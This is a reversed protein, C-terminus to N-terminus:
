AAKQAPQREYEFVGYVKGTERSNFYSTLVRHAALEPFQDDSEIERIIIDGSKYSGSEAHEVIKEQTMTPGVADAFQQKDYVIHFSPKVGEAVYYETAVFDRLYFKSIDSQPDCDAEIRDYKQISQKILERYIFEGIKAGGYSEDVNFSGFYIHPEPAEANDDVRAYGVIEDEHRLTYFGTEPKSFSTELGARVKSSFEVPENQWFADFIELMRARDSPSLTSAPVSEFSASEMISIDEAEAIVGESRLTRFATTFIVNEVRVQELAELTEEDSIDSALIDKARRMLNADLKKNVEPSVNDGFERVTNRTGIVLHNYLGLIDAGKPSAAIKEMVHHGMNRDFEMSLFARIGDEGFQDVFDYVREQLNPGAESVFSLFWGQEEFTLNNFRTGTKEFFRENYVEFYKETFEKIFAERRAREEESVEGRDKFLTDYTIALVDVDIQETDDSLDGLEFYGVMKEEDDFVGVEGNSTLRNVFFDPNNLEGLNYLRGMYRVGEESMGIKGLELRYLISALANKDRVDARILELLKQSAQEPGQVSLAEAIANGFIPNRNKNWFDVLLKVNEPDPERKSFAEVTALTLKHEAYEEVFGGTEATSNMEREFRSQPMEYVSNAQVTGFIMSHAPDHIPAGTSEWIEQNLRKNREISKKTFHSNLAEDFVLGLQQAGLCLRLMRSKESEELAEFEPIDFPTRREFPRDGAFELESAERSAEVYGRGADGFEEEIRASGMNYEYGSLLYDPALERREYIESMQSNRNREPFRDSLMSTFVFTIGDPPCDSFESVMAEMVGIDEPFRDLYRGIDSPRTTVHMSARALLVTRTGPDIQDLENLVENSFFNRPDGGTMETFRADLDEDFKHQEYFDVTDYPDATEHSAEFSFQKPMENM